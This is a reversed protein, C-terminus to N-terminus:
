LKLNYIKNKYFSYFKNMKTFTTYEIFEWISLNYYM